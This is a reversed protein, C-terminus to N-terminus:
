LDNDPLSKLARIILSGNKGDPDLEIEAAKLARMKLSLPKPRLQKRLEEAHELPLAECCAEFQVDAGWRAAQICITDTEMTTCDWFADNWRKLLEPPPTIPHKQSMSHQFLPFYNVYGTVVPTVRLTFPLLLALALALLM